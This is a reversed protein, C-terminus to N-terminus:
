DPFRGCSHDEQVDGGFRRWTLRGPRRSPRLCKGSAKIRSTCSPSKRMTTTSVLKPDELDHRLQSHKELVEQCPALKCLEWVSLVTTGKSRSNMTTGIWEAGSPLAGMKSVSDSASSGRSAILLSPPPCPAAKDRVPLLARTTQDHACEFMVDNFRRHPLGMSPDADSLHLMSPYRGSTSQGDTTRRCNIKMDLLPPLEATPAAM